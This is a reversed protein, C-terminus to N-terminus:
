KKYNEFESALYNQINVSEIKILYDYLEPYIKAGTKGSFSREPYNSIIESKLVYDLVNEDDLYKQIVSNFLTNYCAASGCEIFHELMERIQFKIKNEEIKLNDAHDIMQSVSLKNNSDITNEYFCFNCFSNYNGKLLNFILKNNCNLCNM